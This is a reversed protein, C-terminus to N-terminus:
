EEAGTAEPATGVAEPLTASSCLEIAVVSPKTLDEDSSSCNLSEDSKFDAETEETSVFFFDSGTVIVIM